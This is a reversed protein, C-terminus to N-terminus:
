SDTVQYIGYQELLYVYNQSHTGIMDCLSLERYDTAQYILCISACTTCFHVYMITYLYVYMATYLYVYMITYLYVYMATYLYVHMITYLYVYM